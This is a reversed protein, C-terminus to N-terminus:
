GRLAVIAAKDADTLLRAITAAPKRPVDYITDSGTADKVQSIWWGADTQRLAAAEYISTLGAIQERTGPAASLEARLNDILATRIKNAWTIQKDTGTLQPM